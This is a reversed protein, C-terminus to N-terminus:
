GELVNETQVIIDYGYAAGGSIVFGPTCHCRIKFNSRHNMDACGAKAIWGANKVMSKTAAIANKKARTFDESRIDATVFAHRIAKTLTKRYEAITDKTPTMHSDPNFYVRVRSTGIPKKGDSLHQVVTTNIIRM